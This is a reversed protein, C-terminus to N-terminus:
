NCGCGGGASGTSGASGEKSHYIHDKLRAQLPDPYWTMEQKALHNKEWPQM